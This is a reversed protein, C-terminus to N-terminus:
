ALLRFNEVARPADNPLFEIEIPGKETEIVAHLGGSSKIVLPAASTSDTSSSSPEPSSSCAAAGALALSALLLRVSSRIQSRLQQTMVERAYAMENSAHLESASVEVGGPAASIHNHAIYLVRRKM